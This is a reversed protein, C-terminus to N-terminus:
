RGYHELLYFIFGCACGFMISGILNADAFIGFLACLLLLIFFRFFTEM